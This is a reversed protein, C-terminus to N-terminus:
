RTLIEIASELQEDRDQRLGEATPSQLRDPQTGPFLSGNSREALMGTYTLHYSGPLWFGNLNGNTGSSPEGVITGLQNQAVLTMFGEGYSNAVSDTLFVKPCSILPKAPDADFRIDEFGTPNGGPSEYKPIRLLPGVVRKTSFHGLFSQPVVPYGRVDIIVGTASVLQSLISKLEDRKARTVDLYFIGPRLQCFEKPRTVPPRHSPSVPSIRQCVANRQTGDKGQVKLTMTSNVAGELSIDIALLEQRERSYASTRHLAESFVQQVPREDIELLKEGASVESQSEDVKGIVLAGGIRRCAFPPYSVRPKVGSVFAHGDRLPALFRRLEEYFEVANPCIAARALSTELLADWQVGVAKGYPYFNRLHSWALIIAAIRVARDDANYSQHAHDSSRLNAMSHPAVELPGYLTLEPSLASKFSLGSTPSLQWGDTYAPASAEGCGHYVRHLSNASQSAKPPGNLNAKPATRRIFEDVKRQLSQDDPLSEFARVGEVTLREWNADVTEPGPYFYQIASVLRALAVLNKLGRRGLPRAAEIAPQKDAPGLTKLSVDDIWMDGRGQLLVGFVLTTTDEPVDIVQRVLQWSPETVPNRLSNMPARRSTPGNGAFTQCFLVAKGTRDPVKARLYAQLEIKQGAFPTADLRKRYSIWGIEGDVPRNLHFCHKGSHPLTGSTEATGSGDYGGYEGPLSKEWGAPIAGIVGSEFGLNDLTQQEQAGAELFNAQLGTAGVLLRLLLRRSTIM